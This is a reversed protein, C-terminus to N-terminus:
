PGSLQVVKGLAIAYTQCRGTAAVLEGPAAETSQQVQLQYPTACIQDALLANVQPDYSNFEAFEPPITGSPKLASVSFADKVPIDPTCGTVLVSILALGTLTRMLRGDSIAAGITGPSYAPRL